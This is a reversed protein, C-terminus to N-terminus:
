SVRALSIRKGWNMAVSGRSGANVFVVGDCLDNQVKVPLLGYEIGADTLQIMEGEKVSLAEASKPSIIACPEPSLSELAKTYGSLEGSALVHFKPLLLWKDKAIVFQEPIDKFFPEAAEGRKEQLLRVGPNGGRLAGNPEDQYKTVSQVSNWGPAWFFPVAWSPPVGKFGEMTFSLPSDGDFFPKPESVNKNAQIATRGSYRHPERPIREGHITFDHDPSVSVIGKFQPLENEMKHLLEDPHL